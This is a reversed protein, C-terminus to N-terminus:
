VCCCKQNVFHVKACLAAMDTTSSSPDAAGAEALEAKADEVQRVNANAIQNLQNDMDEMISRYVIFTVYFYIDPSCVFITLQYTAFFYFCYELEGNKLGVLLAKKAKDKISQLDQKSEEVSNASKKM